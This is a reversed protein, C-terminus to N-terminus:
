SITIWAYGLVGLLTVGLITERQQEWLQGWSNIVYRLAARREQGLEAMLEKVRANVEDLSVEGKQYAAELEDLKRWYTKTADLLNPFM